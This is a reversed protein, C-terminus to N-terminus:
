TIIVTDWALINQNFIYINPQLFKGKLLFCLCFQSLILDAIDNYVYVYGYVCIKIPTSVTKNKKEWM